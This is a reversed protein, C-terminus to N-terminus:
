YSLLFSKLARWKRDITLGIREGFAKVSERRYIRLEYLDGNYKCVKGRIIVESNKERKLFITSHINFNNLLLRRCIELLERDYNWVSIYAMRPDKPDVFVYGESDFFGRIFERPFMEAIRLLEEKPKSLFMYLEKSTAEACWRGTSGEFYIRPNAGIDKLANAFAEAFEKDVVKLRVRYRYREDSDISGDGFYVGIIYALQPSPELNVRKIRNGLDSTGKCWRIVTAKSISVHFEEKIIEVIKSYSLGEDRLEPIRKKIHEAEDLSLESIKRM